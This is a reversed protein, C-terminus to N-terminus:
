VGALEDRLEDVVADMDVGALAEEIAAIIGEDVEERLHGYLDSTIAISSHGLRRQIATLSRGASILMAAHTHRLDHIRLGVLGARECAKLWVRRFNRTRVPGGMVATFLLAERDRDVVLGAL